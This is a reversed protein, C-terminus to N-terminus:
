LMLAAGVLVALGAMPHVAFSSYFVQDVFPMAPSPDARLLTAGFAALSAGLAVFALREPRALALAAMAAALAGAMARDPQLALALAAILLALLAAANRRRAFWLAFAPVLFLAPQLLIGGASVWRRVGEASVGFLSTLLLLI